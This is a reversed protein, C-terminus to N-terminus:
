DTSGSEREESCKRALRNSSLNDVTRSASLATISVPYSSFFVNKICAIMVETSFSSKSRTELTNDTPELELGSIPSERTLEDVTSSLSCAPVERLPAPTGSLGRSPSFGAEV